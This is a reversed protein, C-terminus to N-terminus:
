VHRVGKAAKRRKEIRRAKSAMAAWKDAVSWRGLERSVEAKRTYFSSSKM